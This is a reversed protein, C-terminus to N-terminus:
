PKVMYRNFARELLEKMSMDHTVAYTKFEKRFEATVKFSMDVFEKSHTDGKVPRGMKKPGEEGIPSNDLKLQSKLSDLGNGKPNPIKKKPM